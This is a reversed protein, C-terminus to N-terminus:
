LHYAVSLNGSPSPPTGIFDSRVTASLLLSDSLSQTASLSIRAANRFNQAGYALFNSEPFAIFHVETHPAAAYEHVWGARMELNFVGRPGTDFSKGYEAGIESQFDFQGRQAFSLDYIADGQIAKEAYTPTHVGQALFNLYPTLRSRTSM